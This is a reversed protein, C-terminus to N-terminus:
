KIYILSCLFFLIYYITMLSIYFSISLCLIENFIFYWFGYAHSTTIQHLAFTFVLILNKKEQIFFIIKLIFKSFGYWMIIIFLVVNVVGSDDRCLMSAYNSTGSFCLHSSIKKKKKKSYMRTSSLSMINFKAHPNRGAWWTSTLIVKKGKIDDSRSLPWSSTVKLM